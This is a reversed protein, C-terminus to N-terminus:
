GVFLRKIEYQQKIYMAREIDGYLYPTKSLEVDNTLYWKTFIFDLEVCYYSKHNSTKKVIRITKPQLKFRTIKNTVLRDLIFFIMITLIISELIM